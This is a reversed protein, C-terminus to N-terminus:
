LASSGRRVRLPGTRDDASMDDVTDSRSDDDALLGAVMKDLNADLFADIKADLALLHLLTAQLVVDGASAQQLFRQRKAEPLDLAERLLAVCRTNM